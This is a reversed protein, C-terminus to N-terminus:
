KKDINFILRVINNPFRDLNSNYERISRKYKDLVEIYSDSDEGIGNLEKKCVDVRSDYKEISKYSGILMLSIVLMVVVIGWLVMVKKSM